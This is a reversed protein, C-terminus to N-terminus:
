QTKREKLTAAIFTRTTWTDGASTHEKRQFSLQSLSVIFSHFSFAFAFDLSPPNSKDFSLNGGACEPCKPIAGRVKGDAIRSILESKAGSVPQLNARLMEKLQPIKFAQLEDEVKSIEAEEKEEEPSLKRKGKKPPTKKTAKKSIKKTKAARKKRSPGDSDEEDSEEEEEEEEESEEDEAEEKFEEEECDEDKKARKKPPNKKTSKKEKEKKEEPVDEEKKKKKKKSEAKSKKVEKEEVKHEVDDETTKRKTATSRRARKGEILDEISKQDGKELSEFGDLEKSSKIKPHFQV